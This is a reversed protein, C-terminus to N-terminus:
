EHHSAKQRQMLQQKKQTRARLERATMASQSLPRYIEVQDGAQVIAQLTKITGFIGVQNQALDIEPYHTLLGSELIAQEITSGVPLQLSVIKYDKSSSAYVVDINILSNHPMFRIHEKHLPM